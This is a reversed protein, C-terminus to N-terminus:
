ESKNKVEEKMHLFVLSFIFVGAMMSFASAYYPYASYIFREYQNHRLPHVSVQTSASIRTLGLRAYDVTFKFVGYVDPITFQSTFVGGNGERSVMRQRVFPDIRVFEMQLDDAHFPVWVGGVYESIHLTYVCEDRVTYFAENSSDQSNTSAASALRHSVSDIRIVGTQQFCWAVLSRALAQNGSQQPASSSTDSAKKVNSAFFQDSLFDKSGIIVVRANNRAQLGAILITNRGVAHPYDKIVEEPHHSYSTSSGSLISLVLPNAPDTLMGQGRFLLPAGEENANGVIRNSKVLLGPDAVILNHLGEDQEDVNLHDIVSTGDEDIEVGVESAIDRVIEGTHTSSPGGGAAILVNGGDDIFEIVSEANLSGSALEDAVPALLVLHDYLYDGYKKLALSPDDHSKVVTTFGLASLQGLFNSHTEIVAQTDVIVLVTPSGGPTASAAATLALWLTLMLLWLM